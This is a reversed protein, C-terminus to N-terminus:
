NVSPTGQLQTKQLESIVLSCCMHCFFYPALLKTSYMILMLFCDKIYICLLNSDVINLSPLELLLLFEGQFWFCIYLM